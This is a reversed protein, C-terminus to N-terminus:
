QPVRPEQGVFIGQSSKEQYKRHIMEFLDDTSAGIAEGGALKVLGEKKPKEVAEKDIGFNFSKYPDEYAINRANVKNGSYGGGAGSTMTPMKVSALKAKTDAAILADVESIQSPSILGADALSQGNIGGPPITKGKPSTVVGTKTDVSFGTNKKLDNALQQVQQSALNLQKDLDDPGGGGPGNPNTWDNGGFNGDFGKASANASRATNGDVVANALYMVMMACAVFDEKACDVAKEGSKGTNYLMYGTAAVAIGTSINKGSNGAFGVTSRLLFYVVTIFLLFKGFKGNM